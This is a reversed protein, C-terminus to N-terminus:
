GRVLVFGFCAAFVTGIEMVGVVCPIVMWFSRGRVLVRAPVKEFNAEADECVHVREEYERGFKVLM